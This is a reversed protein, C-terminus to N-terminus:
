DCDLPKWYTFQHDALIYFARIPKTKEAINLLVSKMSQEVTKWMEVYPKTKEKWSKLFSDLGSFQNNWESFEM